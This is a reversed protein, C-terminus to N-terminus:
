QRATIEIAPQRTLWEARARTSMKRGARQMGTREAWAQNSGFTVPMFVFKINFSNGFRANIIPVAFEYVHGPVRMKMGGSEIKRSYPEPNSIHITQGPRWDRVDQVGRGDVFVMHSDRYLGPHPDDGSGVPSKDRLTQLAFQVVGDAYSYRYEIRNPRQDAINKAIKAIQYGTYILDGVVIAGDVIRAVSNPQYTKVIQQNKAEAVRVFQEGVKALARSTAAEFQRQLAEERDVGM